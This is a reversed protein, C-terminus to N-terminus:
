VGVNCGVGATIQKGNNRRINHTCDREWLYGKNIHAQIQKKCFEFMDQNKLAEKYWDVTFEIAEPLSLMAKWRLKKYAKTVDVNLLTNEHLTEAGSVDLIEGKGYYQVLYEVVERVTKNCELPSGFNFPESYNQPEEILKQGLRLYGSLPELVHEWPRTADPNRIEIAKGEEIFRICDPILRNESWDGGGIVNGARASALAFPKGGELFSRRYSATLIESCGKSSSYMDYGGMPDDEKRPIGNDPNEYCKDTTVNVFAKVAGCKRAAELVNLTGIVNTEYTLKPEDYSLRVLPQAALHFVIEPRTQAFFKELTESDRIDAIKEAALLEKIGLVSYATFETDPLLSYGCVKAGLSELWLSLWSGKFGAHGTM